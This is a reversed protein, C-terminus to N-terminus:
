GAAGSSRTTPQLRPRPHTSKAPWRRRKRCRSRCLPSSRLLCCGEVRQVFRMILLSRTRLFYGTWFIVIIWYRDGTTREGYSSQPDPDTDTARCAPCRILTAAGDRGRKARGRKALIAANSRIKRSECAGICERASRFPRDAHAAVHAGVIRLHQPLNRDSAPSIKIGAKM